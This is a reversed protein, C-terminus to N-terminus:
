AKNKDRRLGIYVIIGGTFFMSLSYIAPAISLATSHPLIVSISIALTGNQIGSEISISLAQKDRIGCLRASYYGVVITAVNLVLAFNVIFPITHITVFSSMATLTVSLVTDGNALYKILSVMLILTSVKDM